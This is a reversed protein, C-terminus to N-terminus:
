TVVVRIALVDQDLDVRCEPVRDVLQQGFNSVLSRMVALLWHILGSYLQWMGVFSLNVLLKYQV